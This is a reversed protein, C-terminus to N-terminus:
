KLTVDWGSDYQLILMADREDVTEDANVDANQMDPEVTQGSCMRLVLLADLADTEGNGDADGALREPIKEFVCYLTHERTVTYAFSTETSLYADSASDKWGAFSYGDLPKAELALIDGEAFSLEEWDKEEGGNVTFTGGRYIDSSTLDFAYIELKGGWAAYFVTDARVSAGSPFAETLAADTYWGQFRLGEKEPDPPFTMKGPAAFCEPIESGGNSVFSIRCSAAYTKKLGAFRAYGGATNPFPNYVSVSDTRTDSVLQAAVTPATGDNAFLNGDEAKLVISIQYSHGGTFTEDEGLVRKETVDYWSVGSKWSGSTYDYIRYRSQEDGASLDYDPAAGSLPLEFGGVTVSDINALTYFYLRVATYRDANNPFANSDIKAEEGNVTAKLDPSFANEESTKVLVQVYYIHGAEFASFDRTGSTSDYWYVGDRYGGASSIYIEYDAGDASASYYPAQGVAPPTVSVAISDIEASACASFCMMLIPLFLLILFPAGRFLM